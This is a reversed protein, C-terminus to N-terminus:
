AVMSPPPVERSGDPTVVHIGLLRVRDQCARTLQQAWQEDGTRIRLAGPRAVAMLASAGPYADALATVLNDLMQPTDAPPYLEIGDIQIPQLLRYQEDCLLVMLAGDLRAQLGVFLDLVDAALEENRLPQEAWNEPLDEFTMVEPNGHMRSKPPASPFRHILLAHGRKMM